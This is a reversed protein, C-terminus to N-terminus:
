INGMEAVTTVGIGPVSLLIGGDTELLLGEIIEELEKIQRKILDFEDLKLRLLILESYLNEKPKSISNEAYSLLRTISTDRLKLNQEISLNRLGSPGLELLDSPHSHYRM